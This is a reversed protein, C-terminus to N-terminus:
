SREARVWATVEQPSMPPAADFGLDRLQKTTEPRALIKTMEEALRTKVEAPTGRPVFLANWAVVEFGPLGQEAVSKVGPLIASERTSTVAIPKLKGVLPRTAGVTDIIVKVQGGMVDASATASGKYPVNFLRVGAQRLLESVVRSTTSPLAVDIKDPQAKAAAVLDALSNVGLAPHVSIVMPILCTLAIAEFDQEADFGPNDYLSPNMAHTGATGMVLTYGDPPSKAAISTGLNGAAGPRNDVIVSQGLATALQTAIYRTAVDTGQGAQFAVVIRVPKTPYGQALAQPGAMTLPLLLALWKLLRSM